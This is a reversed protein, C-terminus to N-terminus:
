NGFLGKLVEKPKELVEPAITEGGDGLPIKPLEVGGEGGTVNEILKSPDSLQDTLAGALDPAIQPDNWSGTILLPVALGAANGDGGQGEIDGVLKPEVRYDVTKPPLPVTGKGTLRFLPAIMSLDQNDVVGNTIKYTGSLEAFDTQEADDFSKNLADLSINRILSAINIGKVAGDKFLFDGAGNLNSVLQMESAGQTTLNATANLTGLLKEFDASDRLLPEAQVGSLVFDVQSAPTASAANLVVKGKAMGDYLSLENLDATLKGDKLLIALDSAGITIKRVIVGASKLSLDANVTQLGSFDIPENSWGQNGSSAPTQSPTTSATDSSGSSNETEAPLYPTVDLVGTSLSARIDPKAGSADIRLGGEASLADFNIAVNEFAIVAGKLDLDGKVSLKEFTNESQRELPVGVWSTLGVVSPVDLNLAGALAFESGQAVVGKFDFNVPDSAISAELDSNGGDILNQLNAIGATLAITQAKWDLKGDLSLPQDLAKLAIELNIASLDESAGSALDVYHLEGDVIRVDGLSLGGLSIGEDSGSEATGSDTAPASPTAAQEFVWNPKGDKDVELNIVPKVLVFRDIVIEQSLLPMVQLELAMQDLSVMEKNQGQAYNSLSVGNIEIAVSPFLSLSIEGGIVLDRGTAEKVKEAVLPKQDELSIFMPVILLAAIVLVVLGGVIILIKKM